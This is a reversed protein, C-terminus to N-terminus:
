ALPATPAPVAVGTTLRDLFADLASETAVVTRRYSRLGVGGGAIVGLLGALDFQWDPVAAIAAADTTLAVLVGGGVAISSFAKGRSSLLRWPFVRGGYLRVRVPGPRPPAEVM